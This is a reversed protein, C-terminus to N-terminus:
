DITLHENGLAIDDGPRLECRGVRSGNV